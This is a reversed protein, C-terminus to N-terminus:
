EKAADFAKIVQDTIDMEKPAYLISSATEELILTYNEQAGLKEVVKQLIKMLKDLMQQELKRLEENSDKVFWELEKAKQQYEKEKDRRAQESLVPAKKELDDKFAQFAQQKKDVEKKLENIKATFAEKEKLGRKSENFVRKINIYAIKMEAAYALPSSLLLGCCVFLLFVRKM